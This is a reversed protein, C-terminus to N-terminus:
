ARQLEVFNVFIKLCAAPRDMKDREIRMQGRAGVDVEPHQFWRCALSVKLQGAGNRLLERAQTGISMRSTGAATAAASHERHRSARWVSNMSLTSTPPASRDCAKEGRATPKMLAEPRLVTQKATGGQPKQM